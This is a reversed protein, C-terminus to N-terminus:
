PGPRCCSSAGERHVRALFSASARRRLAAPGALERRRAPRPENLPFPLAVLLPSRASCSSRRARSPSRLRSRDSARAARAERAAGRVTGPRAWSRPRRRHDRREWARPRSACGRAAPAAQLASTPRRSRRAARADRPHAPAPASRHRVRHARHADGARGRLRGAPLRARRRRGSQHAARAAGRGGQRAAPISRTTSCWAHHAPQARSRAGHLHPQRHARDAELPHPAPDDGPRLARLSHLDHGWGARQTRPRRRHRLDLAAGLAPRSVLSPFVLVERDLRQRMGKRFLGLPFLTALHAAAIRHLGRRPFELEVVASRRGARPLWPCLLTPAHDSFSVLLLWRPM